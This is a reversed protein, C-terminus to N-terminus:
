KVENIANPKKFLKLIEAFPIANAKDSLAKSPDM